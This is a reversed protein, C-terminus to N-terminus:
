YDVGGRALMHDNAIHVGCRQCPGSPSIRAHRISTGRAAGGYLRSASGDEL